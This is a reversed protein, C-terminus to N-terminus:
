RIKRYEGEGMEYKTKESRNLNKREKEKKWKSKKNRWGNKAEETM